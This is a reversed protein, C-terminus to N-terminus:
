PLVLDSSRRTKAVIRDCYGLDLPSSSADLTLRDLVAAMVQFTAPPRLRAAAPSSSAARALRPRPPGSDSVQDSHEDSGFRNGARASLRAALM